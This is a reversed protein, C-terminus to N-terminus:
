SGVEDLVSVADSVVVMVCVVVEDDAPIDLEALVELVVESVDDGLLEAANSVDVFLSVVLTVSSGADDETSGVVGLSDLIVSASVSPVLVRVLARLVVVNVIRGTVVDKLEATENSIELVSM